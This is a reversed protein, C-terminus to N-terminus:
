QNLLGKRGNKYIKYAREAGVNEYLRLLGKQALFVSNILYVRVFMRISETLGKLQWTKM